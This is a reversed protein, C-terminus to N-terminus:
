EILVVELPEVVVETVQAPEITRAGEATVRRLNASSKLELLWPPWPRQAVCTVRQQTHNVLVWGIRGDPSRYAQQIVAPVEVEKSRWRGTREDKLGIKLTVYPETVVPRLMQGLMLFDHAFGQRAKTGAVFVQVWPQELIDRFTLWPTPQPGACVGFAMNAAAAYATPGYSGFFGTEVVHGHYVFSYLDPRPTMRSGAPLRESRQRVTRVQECRTYIATYSHARLENYYEEVFGFGARRSGPLADRVRDYYHRATETQWYGPGPPHAHERNWCPLIISHGGGDFQVDDFGAQMMKRLTTVTHEFSTPNTPCVVVGRYQAAGAWVVNGNEDKVGVKDPDLGLSRVARLGEEGFGGEQKPRLINLQNFMVDATVHMGVRHIADTARRLALEGQRPPWWDPNMWLGWKEWGRLDVVGGLQRIEEPLSEMVAPVEELRFRGGGPQNQFRAREEPTMELPPKPLRKPGSEPLYIFYHPVGRLRWPGIDRRQSLPKPFWPQREAWDRYVEAAEYPAHQVPGLRATFRPLPDGPATHVAYRWVISTPVAGSRAVVPQMEVDKVWQDPDLAMLYAGGDPGYQCLIPLRASVPYVRGRMSHGWGSGLSLPESGGLVVFTEEPKESMLGPTAIQPFVVRRVSCGPLKEIQELKLDVYGQPYLVIRVAVATVAGVHRARLLYSTGSGAADPEVSVSVADVSRVEEKRGDPDELGIVYLPVEPLLDPSLRRPGQRKFVIERVRLRPVAFVLRVADNQLTETRSNRIAQELEERTLRPRGSEREVLSVDDLWVRGRMPENDGPRGVHRLGIRVAETTFSTRFAVEVGTWDNRGGLQQTQKLLLQWGRADQVEIHVKGAALETRVRATLLYQTDPFVRVTQTPCYFQANEEFDVALRMSAQGSHVVQRDIDLQLQAGGHVAGPRPRSWGQFGEEFGPNQVLNTAAIAPVAVLWSVLVVHIM